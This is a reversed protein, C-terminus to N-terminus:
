PRPPHRGAAHQTLPQRRRAHRHGARRWAACNRLSVDLVHLTLPRILGSHEALPIFVDPAIFGHEPHHWRSLAEAGVVAGTAPDVKPQFVVATDQRDIADRLDGILALRQPTNQDDTARYIRVGARAQKAAYMAVDARRLLTGSDQGHEPALAIGVSARPHLTLHGVHVPRELDRVLEQGIAAADEPSAVAVLM